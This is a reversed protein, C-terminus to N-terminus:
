DIELADEAINASSPTLEKENKDPFAFGHIFGAVAITRVDGAVVTDENQILLDALVEGPFDPYNTVRYTYRKLRQGKYPTLDLGQARQIENYRLYVDNFKQPITVEVVEVPTTELKWGFQSLFAIRKANDSIGQYRASNWVARSQNFPLVAAVVVLILAITIVAIKQFLFHNQKKM